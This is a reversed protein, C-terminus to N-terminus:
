APKETVDADGHLLFLRSAKEEEGRALMETVEALLEERDARENESTVTSLLLSITSATEELDRLTTELQRHWDDANPMWENVHEMKALATIFAGLPETLTRLYLTDDAFKATLEYVAKERMAPGAIVTQPHNELAILVRAATMLAPLSKAADGTFADPDIAQAILRVLNNKSM